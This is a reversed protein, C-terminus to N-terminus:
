CSPRHSGDNWLQITPVGRHIGLVSLHAPAYAFKAADTASLGLWRAALVRLALSHSFVLVAGGQARLREIVPQLRSGVDDFSEGGPCGNRWLDWDPYRARIEETTHGECEGCDMEILEDVIEPEPFGALEATRQVRQLPSALVADWAVTGLIPALRRAQREGTETLPVDARGNYRRELAHRTQGHRVLGVMPRELESLNNM